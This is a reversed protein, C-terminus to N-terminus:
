SRVHPWGGAQRQRGIAPVIHTYWWTRCLHSELAPWGSFDCARLDCLFGQSPLPRGRAVLRGCRPRCA